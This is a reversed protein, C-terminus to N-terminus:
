GPHKGYAHLIRKQKQLTDDPRGTDLERIPAKQAIAPTAKDRGFMDGGSSMYVIAYKFIKDLM